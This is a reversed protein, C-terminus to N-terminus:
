LRNGYGLRYEFSIPGTFYQEGLFDGVFLLRNCFVDIADMNKYGMNPNRGGRYGNV